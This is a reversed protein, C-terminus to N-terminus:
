QFGDSLETLQHIWWGDAKRSFSEDYKQQLGDSMETLQGIWWGDAMCSVSKDSKQHFRDSTATLQYIRWGDATLWWGDTLQWRYLQRIWLNVSVASSNWCIDSMELQCIPGFFYISFISLTNVCLKQNKLIINQMLISKLIKTRYSSMNLDM